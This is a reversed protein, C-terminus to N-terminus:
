ILHIGYGNKNLPFLELFQAYSIRLKADGVSIEYKPINHECDDCNNKDALCVNCLGDSNNSGSTFSSRRSGFSGNFSGNFGGGFSGQYSNRRSTFGEASTKENM